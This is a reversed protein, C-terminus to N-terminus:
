NNRKKVEALMKSHKYLLCFHGSRRCFEKAGLKVIETALETPKSRHNSLESNSEAVNFCPTLTDTAYASADRHTVHTDGSTKDREKNEDNKKQNKTSCIVSPFM